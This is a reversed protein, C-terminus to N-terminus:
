KQGLIDEIRKTLIKPSFPKTFVCNAGAKILEEERRERGQGTIVIIPIDSLEADESFEQVLQYGSKGPLNLDLLMLDPRSARAKDTVSLGERVITLDYGSRSLSFEILRVMVPDDDAILIRTM